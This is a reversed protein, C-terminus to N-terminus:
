GPRLGLMLIGLTACSTGVLAWGVQRLRTAPVPLLCVALSLLATPLVALPVIGGLGSALAAASGSVTWAAVALAHLRGVDREGRSRARVLITQVAFASGGFAITWAAFPAAATALPAGSALAVVGGAGALATAVTLEGLLSRERELLVLLVVAAALTGPVLAALRAAPPALWLGTAGAVAAAAALGLLLRLARPGDASRAREGRHGIAVLWPEHALFALVTAAALLAAPVTTPALALGTILPMALQGWAGHEQPLLSRPASAALSATAEM